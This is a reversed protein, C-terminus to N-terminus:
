SSKIKHNRKREGTEKEEDMSGTQAQLEEMIRLASNHCDQTVKSQASRQSLVWHNFLVAASVNLLIYICLLLDECQSWVLFM